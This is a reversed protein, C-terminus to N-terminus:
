NNPFVYLSSQVTKILTNGKDFNLNISNKKEFLNAESHAYGLIKYADSFGYQKSLINVCNGHAANYVANLYNMVDKTGYWQKWQSIKSPLNKYTSSNAGNYQESTFLSEYAGNNKFFKPNKLRNEMSAGIIYLGYQSERVTKGNKDKVWGGEAALMSFKKGIDSNLDTTGLINNQDYHTLIKGNVKTYYRGVNQYKVGDQTIEKSNGKRWIAEGGGEPEYWDRGDPDVLRVPNWACYAYPSISPYKDAMPDVSLWMTMLEHDMYRAGFYGYGTEADKEKGTFTSGCVTNIQNRKQTASITYQIPNM